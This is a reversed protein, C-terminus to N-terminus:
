VKQVIYLVSSMKLGLKKFLKAGYYQIDLQALKFGSEKVRKIFDSKAYLRVHDNQGYYRWRDEDTEVNPINEISRQLALSIPVMLIGKGGPKTIRFLEAIASRDDVIHELVHSCIFFDCENDNIMRLNTLDAKIDVNDSVLDFTKYHCDHFYGQIFEKLSREPAFHYFVFAGWKTLDNKLYYAYLRERDSAGCHPCSYTDHPTMEGMGFYKYGHKKSEEAYFLPLPNYHDLITDCVPCYYKKIPFFIM